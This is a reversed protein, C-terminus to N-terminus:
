LGSSFPQALVSMGCNRWQGHTSVKFRLLGSVLRFLHPWSSMDCRHSRGRPSPQGLATLRRPSAQQVTVGRRRPSVRATSGRVARDVPLMPVSLWNHVESTSMSSEANKQRTGSAYDTDATRHVSAPPKGPSAATQGHASWSPNPSSSAIASHAHNLAGRIDVALVKPSNKDSVTLRCNLGIQQRGSGSDATTQSSVSSDRSGNMSLPLGTPGSAPFIIWDQQSDAAASSGRQRAGGGGVWSVRKGDAKYFDSSGTRVAKLAGRPSIRREGAQSTPSM